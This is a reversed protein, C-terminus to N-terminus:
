SQAKLSRVISETDFGHIVDNGVRIVPVGGGGLREFRAAGESDQEVDYRMYDIDNTRLFSELKKCYPCWSTVFIEVEAQKAEAAGSLLFFSLVVASLNRLVSRKM